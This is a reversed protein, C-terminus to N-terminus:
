GIKTFEGIKSEQVTLDECYKDLEEFAADFDRRFESYGERSRWHDITFYRQSNSQDRILDTKLYGSGRRFLEAWAGDAGYAEEFEANSSDKVVFEWIYCYTQNKIDGMGQCGDLWGRCVMGDGLNVTAYARCFVGCFRAAIVPGSPEWTRLPDVFSVARATTQLPLHRPRRILTNPRDQTSIPTILRM